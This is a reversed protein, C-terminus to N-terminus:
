KNSQETPVGLLVDGVLSSSVTRIQAGDSKRAVESMAHNFIAKANRPPESLGELLESRFMSNRGNSDEAIKDPMASTAILSNRLANIPALGHSYERFRREFPNLRSADIVVLEAGASVQKLQSL